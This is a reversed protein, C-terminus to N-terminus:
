TPRTVALAITRSAPKANAEHEVVTLTVGGADVEAGVPVASGFSVIGM